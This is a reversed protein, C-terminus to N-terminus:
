SDSNDDFIKELFNVIKENIKKNEVIEKLSKILFDISPKEEGSSAIRFSLEMSTERKFLDAIDFSFSLSHNNHIFGISPSFGMMLICSSCYAYMAVNLINLCYNTCDGLFINKTDYKRGKWLVGYQSSLSAYINKVMDGELGMISQINKGKVDIDPFRYLFMKRAINERKKKNQFYEIQKLLNKNNNTPNIGFSYLKFGDQGVWFLLMNSESAIHIAEHTISTGPGLMIVSCEASPIHLHNGDKDIWRLSSGFVHLKGHELFIPTWRNKFHSLM